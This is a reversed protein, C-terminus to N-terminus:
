LAPLAAPPPNMLELLLQGYDVTKFGGFDGVLHPMVAEVEDAMVGTYLTERDDLFKFEYVFLGNPLTDIIRIDDKLRRDSLMKYGLYSGALQGAGQFLDSMQGAKQAGIGALGGAASSLGGLARSGQGLAMGALGARADTLAFRNRLGRDLVGTRAITKAGATDAAEGLALSRLSSVFKGSGPSMGYRGLTKMLGKRQRNYSQAVDTTALGEELAIGARGRRPTSM